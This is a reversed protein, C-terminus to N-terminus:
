VMHCFVNQSEEKVGCEEEQHGLNELSYAYTRIELEIIRELAVDGLQDQGQFRGDVGEVGVEARDAAVHELGGGVELVDDAEPGPPGVVHGAQGHRPLLLLQVQRQLLHLGLLLLRPLPLLLLLLDQRGTPM